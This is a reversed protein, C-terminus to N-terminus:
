GSVRAALAHIFLVFALTCSLTRVHNWFTWQDLFRAWTEPDPQAALADNLPVNGIVTVIFMGGIYALGAILISTSQAEGWRWLSTAALVACALTTAMFLPLFVTKLIVVNISNMAAIGEAPAIRALAPMVFVSFAFYIGAMLGCGVASLWLLGTQIFSLM